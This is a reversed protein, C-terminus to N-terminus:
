WVSQITNVQWSSMRLPPLASTTPTSLLFSRTMEPDFLSVFCFQQYLEYLVSFIVAFCLLAVASCLFRVFFLYPHFFSVPCLYSHRPLSTDPWASVWCDIRRDSTMGLTELDFFLYRDYVNQLSCILTSDAFTKSPLLLADRLVVLVPDTLKKEMIYLTQRYNM